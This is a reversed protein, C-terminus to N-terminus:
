VVNPFRARTDWDKVQWNEFSNIAINFKSYLMINSYIFMFVDGKCSIYKVTKNIKFNNCVGLTAPICTLYICSFKWGFFNSSPSNRLRCISIVKCSCSAYYVTCFARMSFIYTCNICYFIVWIKIVGKRWIRLILPIVFVCKFIKM